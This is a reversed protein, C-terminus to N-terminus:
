GPDHMDGPATEGAAGPTGMDGNALGLLGLIWELM